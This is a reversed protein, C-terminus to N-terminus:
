HGGTGEKFIANFLRMKQEHTLENGKRAVIIYAQDLDSETERGLLYDTTTGLTSALKALIDAKPEREGTAYRSMTAETIGTSEAVQRQTLNQQQMLELLRQGFEKTM